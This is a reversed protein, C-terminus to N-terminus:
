LSWLASVPAAIRNEGFPVTEDGGHLVIGRVFRDKALSALADLGKFDEPTVTRGPRVDIGVIRGDGTELVIDVERGPPTRLHHLTVRTRCWGAQKRLEMVVLNELLPALAGADGLRGRDFGLLHCALGTDTLFIKDAKTLRVGAAADWAALPQVLFTAELLAVYRQLTTHPIDLMRSLEAVNLLGGIRSALLTLLRPLGTLGAVNALDRVDRQLVTTLYSGFWAARREDSVRGAAEPFGGRVIRAAVDSDSRSPAPVRPFKVGFAADIFCEQREAMEGQSLPWLPVIEIRGALSDSVAPILLLNASGTLLFRGATRERDVAAKLALFLDPARQVEDLVTPGDLGAVFGAPDGRAAALVSADDLTLYRRAPDVTRALTTKGTQRAGHILVVPTDALAATLAHHINRRYM